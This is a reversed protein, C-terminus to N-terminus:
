HIYFKIFIVYVCPLEIFVPSLYLYTPPMLKDLIENLPLKNISKYYSMKWASKL